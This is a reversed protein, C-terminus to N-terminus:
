TMKELIFECGMGVTQQEQLLLALEPFKIVRWGDALAELVTQYPWQAPDAPLARVTGGSVMAIGIVQSGLGTNSVQLYLLDQLAAPGALSLAELLDAESLVGQRFKELCGELQQRLQHASM